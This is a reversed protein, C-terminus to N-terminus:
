RLVVVFFPLRDRDSMISFGLNSSDCLSCRGNRSRTSRCRGKGRSDRSRRHRFGDSNASGRTLLFVFKSESTETSRYTGEREARRVVQLTHVVNRQRSSRICAPFRSRSFRLADSLTRDVRGQTIALGGSRRISRSCPYQCLAVFVAM